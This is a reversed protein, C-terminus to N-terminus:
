QGGQANQGGGGGGGQGDGFSMQTYRRTPQSGGKGGQPGPAGGAQPMFPLAGTPLSGAIGGGAQQQQIALQMQAFQQQLQPPIGAGQNGAQIFYTGPQGNADTGPMVMYYQAGAPGQSQWQQQWQPGGAGYEDGSPMWTQQQQMEDMGNYGMNPAMGQQQQQM